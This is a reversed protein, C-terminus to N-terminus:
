EVDFVKLLKRYASLFHMPLIEVGYEDIVGDRKESWGHEEFYESSLLKKLAKIEHEECVSSIAPIYDGGEKAEHIIQPRMNITVDSLGKLEQNKAKLNRNESILSTVYARSGMPLAKIFDNEASNNHHKKFKDSPKRVGNAYHDVFAKILERYHDNQTKKLSEGSVGGQSASLRGINALSFDRGDHEAYKLLVDYLNNLSKQTRKHTHEAMLRDRVESPTQKTTDNM